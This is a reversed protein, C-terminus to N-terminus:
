AFLGHLYWRPVERTAALSGAGPQGLRDRYVWVLGATASRAVYYDRLACHADGELWGSELRQPGALLNLPGEYQPCGQHVTLRLPTALLWSPYLAGQAQDQLVNLGRARTSYAYVAGSKIATPSADVAAQWRQMREPRHDAMLTTCRVQEPGLRASLRELLQHLNDGHRVDDSLLSISEGALPQTQLSRLRLHLVPAPLTVQALQEALLRALHQMDQTAQATRLLLRGQGGGTHHADVHLANSRRADLEWLLELALVGRHRARLWLQLQALLRRAGFLLASATEVSSLLELPVDFVEPLTLWPYLEARQGYACDLADVLGAGFRRAVGGRPLARLQGWNALGLRVLTPLHARAAVLTHLPLADPAITATGGTTRSACQLRGYAILSTAGQAYEVLALPWNPKLLQDLLAARGGFLRESASVELVLAAEVRAVLPTFQLAWWAWASPADVLPADAAAAGPAEPAPQLAIWHM